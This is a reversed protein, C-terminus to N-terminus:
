LESGGLVELSPLSAELNKDVTELLCFEQVSCNQEIDFPRSGNIACLMWLVITHRPEPSTPPLQLTTRSFCGPAEGFPLTYSFCYSAKTVYSRSFSFLIGISRCCGICIVNAIPIDSLLQHGCDDLSSAVLQPDVSVVLPPGLGKVVSVLVIQRNDVTQQLFYFTEFWTAAIRSSS